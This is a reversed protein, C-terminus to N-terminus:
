ELGVSIDAEFLRRWPLIVSIDKVDLRLSVDATYHKFIQWLKYKIRKQLVETERSSLQRFSGGMAKILQPRVISEYVCDDLIREILFRKYALFSLNDEKEPIMLLTSLATGLANGSTNWAAYGSLRTLLGSKLLHNVLSCDGGNAYAVDALVVHKGQDLAARMREFFVNMSDPIRPWREDRQVFSEEQFNGRPGWIFLVKRCANEADDYILNTQTVKAQRQLVETLSCDEYRTIIEGVEASNWVVGLSQGSAAYRALLLQALEDTGTTIAINHSNEALANLYNGELLNFGHTQCDDFGFLLYSNRHSDRCSSKWERVLASNILSKQQRQRLYDRWVQNPLKVGQSILYDQAQNNTFAEKLDELSGYHSALLQSAKILLEAEQIESTTKQTPAVRMITNFAFTNDRACLLSVRNGLKQRLEEDMDAPRRSGVLGGWFLMDVSVVAPLESDQAELWSWLKESDGRCELNGLMEAPPMCLQIGRFGALRQFFVSCCPRSDLPIFLLRNSQKM